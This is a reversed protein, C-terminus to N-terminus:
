SVREIIEELSVDEVAKVADYFSNGGLFKLAETLELNKLLVMKVINEVKEAVQDTRAPEQKLPTCDHQHFTGSEDFTIFGVDLDQWSESELRHQVFGAVGYGEDFWGGSQWYETAEDKGAYFRGASEIELVAVNRESPLRTNGGPVDLLELENLYFGGGTIGADALSRQLRPLKIAFLDPFGKGALAESFPDVIFGQRRLYVSVLYTTIGEGLDEPLVPFTICIRDELNLEPRYDTPDWRKRALYKDTHAFFEPYRERMARLSPSLLPILEGKLGEDSRGVTFDLKVDQIRVSPTPNPFNLYEGDRTEIYAQNDRNSSLLQSAYIAEYIPIEIAAHGGIERAKYGQGTFIELWEVM